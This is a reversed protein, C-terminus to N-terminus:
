ADDAGSRGVDPGGVFDSALDAVRHNIQRVVDYVAGLSRDQFKRVDGAVQEFLGNRELIDLPLDVVAKHIEEASSAGRDVTERIWDTITGHNSM